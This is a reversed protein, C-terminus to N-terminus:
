KWPINFKDTEILISELLLYFGNKIKIFITSSNLFLSSKKKFITGSCVTMAM